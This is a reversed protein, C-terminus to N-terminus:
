EALIRRVAECLRETSPIGLREDPSHIDIADPGVSIIDMDPIAAKILGCELGAHLIIKETKKGTLDGLHKAFSDALKSEGPYSWGPYRSYHETERAQCLNATMTIEEEGSDLQAESPSRTSWVLEVEGVDGKTASEMIGLNRSFEVLGEIQASMKIVGTRVAAACGVIKKTTELDFARDSAVEEVKVTMGRDEECLENRMADALEVTKACVTEANESVIVATAERAIANDKGGGSLQSLRVGDSLVVSRLLRILVDNASHRGKNIDEGSHGGVLGKVTIRLAKGECESINGEFRVSSRVGGACGVTVTGEEASDLNLLRKAKVLSYDFKGAGILGIEEGSTFLCEIEPHSEFEGDMAALMMAVAVGDDAGLTTGNAKIFEGDIYMEIGDSDFDHKVGANKECVMDTHGQLLIAPDNERGKTAPIRVFVNNAEDKYSWLGKETAFNEIYAAIKEEKLSARPIASIAEFADFFKRPKLDTLVKGM